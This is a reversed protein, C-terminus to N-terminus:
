GGILGIFEGPEAGAGQCQQFGGGRGSRGVPSRPMLRMHKLVVTSASSRPLGRLTGDPIMSAEEDVLGAESGTSEIVYHLLFGPETFEPMFM